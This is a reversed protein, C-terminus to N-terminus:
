NMFLFTKLSSKFSDTSDIWRVSQPLSNWIQPASFSFSQEGVKRLTKPKLLIRYDSKSRLNRNPSYFKILENIYEPSALHISKHILMCLKYQIRKNVPLWHLEKLLNSASANRPKGFILRAADNQAVQLSHIKDKNFNALLSNCYDLKTLVLSNVLLIAIDKSIQSRIKSIRRLEM